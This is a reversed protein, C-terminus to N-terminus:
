PKRRTRYLVDWSFERTGMFGSRRFLIIGLLLLSFIVMRMGPVGELELGFLTIPSEVIRLWELM